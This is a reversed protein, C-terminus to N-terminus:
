DRNFIASGIRVINSGEEIAVKYDNSMGMSLYRLRINLFKEISDRLIRLERFYKRSDEPNDSYPPMTMFGEVSINKFAIIKEMFPLAEELSIGSKSAEGSVNVQVLLKTIKKNNESYKDIKEALNLSDVSHIMDFLEVAKKAKNRQLHGIMHWSIDSSIGHLALNKRIADQVRNEGFVRHGLKILCKIEELGAYKTAILFIFEEKDRGLKELLKLIDEKIRKYNEEIYKM